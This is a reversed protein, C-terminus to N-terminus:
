TLKRGKAKNDVPIKSHLLKHGFLKPGDLNYFITIVDIDGKGPPSM